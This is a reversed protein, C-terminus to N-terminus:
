AKLSFGKRRRSLLLAVFGFSLLVTSAPAPVKNICAPATPNLVCFDLTEKLKANAFNDVFDSIQQQNTTNFLELDFVQGGNGTALDGYSTITSAGRIVANFLADNMKLVDDVVSKTIAAGNYTGVFTSDGNSPEDTFLILNKISNQRFSILSSQNDLANLGFMSAIYGPETSGSVQLNSAALAFDAASTLDSLLRPVVQSNGYGILSFRADLGGAALISAFQGITNRLNNQVTAMSGSEDVIIVIDTIISAEVKPSGVFLGFGFVTAFLLKRICM